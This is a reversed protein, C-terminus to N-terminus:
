RAYLKKLWEEAEGDWKEYPKSGRVIVSEYAMRMMKAATFPKVQGTNTGLGPCAVSEIMPVHALDADDDDDDMESLADVMQDRNFRKIELLAARFSDYVLEAAIPRPFRMTPTYAMWPVTEDGTPVIVSQGVPMEGCFESGIADRVNQVVDPFQFAMAADMGGDMIGFSNGAAVLCDTPPVDELKGNFVTVNDYDTSSASGAECIQENIDFLVINV